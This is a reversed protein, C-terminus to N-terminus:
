GEGRGINRLVANALAAYPASAPDARVARVALDVAAHDSTELFLVQAAAASWRRRWRGPRERCAKKSSAPSAGQPDHRAPADRSDRDLPGARPRARRSDAVGREGDPGPFRDDLPKGYTLADSIAQAAVWRASM